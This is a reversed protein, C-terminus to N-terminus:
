RIYEWRGADDDDDHFSCFLARESVYVIKEVLVVLGCVMM